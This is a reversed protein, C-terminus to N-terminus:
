SEFEFEYESELEFEHLNSQFDIISSILDQLPARTILTHDAISKCSHMIIRSFYMDSMGILTASNYSAHKSGAALLDEETPTHRLLM